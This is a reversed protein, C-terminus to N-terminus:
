SNPAAPDFSGAAKSQPQGVCLGDKASHFALSRNPKLCVANQFGQSETKCAKACHSVLLPHDRQEDPLLPFRNFCAAALKAEMTYATLAVSLMGRFFSPGASAGPLCFPPEGLLAM